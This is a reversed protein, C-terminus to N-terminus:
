DVSKYVDEKRKPQLEGYWKFGKLLLESPLLEKIPYLTADPKNLLSIKKVTSSDVKILMDSCDARNVGTLQKKKNRIYYITQGNGTVRITKLQNDEFYGVM